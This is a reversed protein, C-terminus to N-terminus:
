RTRNFVVEAIDAAYSSIREFSRLLLIIRVAQDSEMKTISDYLARVQDRFDVKENAIENADLIKDNFFCNMATNYRERVRKALSSIEDLLKKDSVGEEMELTLQATSYAHDAIAELRKIVFSYDMVEVHKLGLFSSYSFDSLVANLQRSVLYYLRDVSPEQKVILQAKEKDHELFVEISSAFMKDSLVHTRRILQNLDLSELSSLDKLVLWHDSEEVIEVGMLNGVFQTIETRIDYDIVNPDFLKITQYGALYKSLVLRKMLNIDAYDKIEIETEGGVDTRKESMPKLLLDGDPQPFIEIVDGKDLKAQRIWEIPLAVIYTSGGTKQIKRSFSNKNSM